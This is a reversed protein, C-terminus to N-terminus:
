LANDDILLWEVAAGYEDADFYALQVPQQLMQAFDNYIGLVVAHHPQVLAIRLLSEPHPHVRHFDSLCEFLYRVPLRQQTLRTDLLLRTVPEFWAGEADHQAIWVMMHDIAYRHSAYFIFEHIANPQSTYTWNESM